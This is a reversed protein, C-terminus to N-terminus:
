FEVTRCREDLRQIVPQLQEPTFLPKTGKIYGVLYTANMAKIPYKGSTKVYWGPVVIVPHIPIAKPPFASLFKRVWNKNSEVQQVAERDYCWPFQLMQGDFIVVHEQQERTAKRRARAKTELVFVGAPGVVIHDINWEADGPM